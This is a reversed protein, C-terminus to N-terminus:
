KDKQEDFWILFAVNTIAHALHSKHSEDDTLEGSRYAELHRYLADIYREEANDVLQWNNPAYKPVIELEESIIQLEKSVLYIIEWCESDTTANVAFYGESIAQQIATTSTSANQTNIEAYRVDKHLSVIMTTNPSGMPVLYLRGNEKNIRLVTNPIVGVTRIADGLQSKKDTGKELREDKLKVDKTTNQTTENLNNSMVSEANEKLTYLVDEIVIPVYDIKVNELEKVNKASKQKGRICLTTADMQLAVLPMKLANSSANIANEKAIKLKLVQTVTNANWLKSIREMQLNEELIGYTAYKTLGYTLVEALAKTASPPILSYRLKGEDYKRGKNAGFTLIEAMAKTAEPPILSYRLKNNDLKLGIPKTNDVIM